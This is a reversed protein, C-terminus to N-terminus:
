DRDPTWGYYTNALEVHAVEDDAIRQFIAGTAPDKKGLFQVLKLGARRGREEADAIQLCFDKGTRCASLKDWLGRSVPRSTLDFGLENMREVIMAYHREEEPVQDRWAQRLGEPADPFAEAAWRFASIAQLEAFAATRM